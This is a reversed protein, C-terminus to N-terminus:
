TVDGPDIGLRRALEQRARSLRKRVAQERIGLVGAVERTELGELLCLLLVERHAAPLRAFERATREARVRADAAEDPGVGPRPPDWGLM